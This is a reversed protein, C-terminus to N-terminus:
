GRRRNGGNATWGGGHQAARGGGKDLMCGHAVMLRGVALATAKFGRTSSAARRQVSGQTGQYGTYPSSNVPITQFCPLVRVKRLHAYPAELTICELLTMAYSWVDSAATVTGSSLLILEPSQWRPGDGVVRTLTTTVGPDAVDQLVEVMGFDSILARHQAYHSGSKIRTRM